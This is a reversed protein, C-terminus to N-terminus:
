CFHPQWRARQGSDGPLTRSTDQGLVCHSLRVSSPDPSGITVPCVGVVQAGLNLAFSYSFRNSAAFTKLSRHLQVKYFSLSWSCLSLAVICHNLDFCINIHKLPGSFTWVQILYYM